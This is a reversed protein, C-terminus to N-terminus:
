FLFDSADLSGSYGKLRITFIGGGLSAPLAVKVLLDSGSRVLQIASMTIGFARLDLKDKGKRFDNVQDEGTTNRFLFRFVDNGGGGDLRDTATSGILTDDGSSGTYLVGKSLPSATITDNGSQGDVTLVNAISTASFDLVNDGSDGRIGNICGEAGQLFEIDCTPSWRALILDGGLSNGNFIRDNGAGGVLTNDVYIGNWGWFTDDGDGGDLLDGGGNSAVLTDNGAGGYVEDSGGGGFLIDDGEEGWLRDNGGRGRLEDNGLGGFLQDGSGGGYLTDNGAEGNLLDGGGGGRLVDNGDGGWLADNGGQGRITDNGTGGELYDSGSGGRLDDDGSGGFLEDDGEIARLNDNGEGGDLWDNGSGGILTDDGGLGFMLDIGPSGYFYDNGSSGIWVQLSSDTFGNNKDFVRLHITRTALEQPFSFTTQALTGAALYSTALGNANTAFSYHFGAAHDATSPDIVNTLGVTVDVTTATVIGSRAVSATPAVNNVLITQTATGTNGNADTVSLQITFTGNDAPTFTFDAVSSTAIVSDGLVATWSYNLPVTGGTVTSGLTIASGEAAYEPTDTIAVVLTGGNSQVAITVTATATGGFGDSISYSFSDTGSFGNNPAYTFSGDSGVAVTGFSPNTHSVVSLTDSDLDTDNGLLGPGSVVLPTNAFTTYSNSNAIPATNAVVASATATTSAATGDNAEVEVRITDGRNGQAALDFTNTTAGSVLVNNVYWRYVFSLADGDADSGSATAVLVDNTFPSATNLTVTATPATNAVVASATATTSAATGDNAEVEVRITDGRNGTVGLDFTNTTAGAVLVNNVYWRYVFSLADGDADSGTATAVLIDNTRPSATNLTVSATPATNAVVASASATTSAATGDNAEVEVRITDGRNGTVGLDFTNTTAGAVLVNNVYWRYVFSLADGDGDSGSATAVLVDNTFPSATNLVVTATPAANAVVASASAPMGSSIIDFAMVEVRITDGRKGFGPQALDLSDTTATTNLTQVLTNNVFWRYTLTVPDGDADSRTVTAVLLTNTGPTTTNLTVTATPATNAVTASATASNGVEIRDNSAVAVTIVDGRNGYGLQSLDLADTTTTTSGMTRVIEGNVRWVYTLYVPDGDTDETTVTATLLDNTGPSTTNLQVGITPATNTARVFDNSTAGLIIDETATGRYDDDGASGSLIDNGAGGVVTDGIGGQRTGGATPNTYSYLYLEYGGAQTDSGPSGAFTDVEIYYTGDAPIPIDILIPDQNDFGDDNIAPSGYYNVLQGASNYVRVIGDVPQMRQRLSSSLLEITLFEGAKAQIAYVDNESPGTGGLTRQIGGIISTARVNLNLGYNRTGQPLLNPVALAPLEGIARASGGLSAPATTTALAGENFTVGANTFALRILEREGFFTNGLADLISTGVSVPSAMIHLPTENALIPGTYGPRFAEYYYSVVVSSSATPQSWVLSLVGGGTAASEATFTASLVSNTAGQVPTIMVGGGIQVAFTAVQLGNSYISGNPLTLPNTMAVPKPIGFVYQVATTGNGTIQENVVRSRQPLGSFIGYSQGDTSAGIPGFSDNHRLGLLHGLEHAILTSTFAVYNPSTAAPQGRRGLFGNANILAVSGTNVNRFDLESALGAILAENSGPAGANLVITGYRGISPRTQTFVISFPFAYDQELRSQILNRDEISYFYENPGTASDFDLYVLQTFDGQVTDAGDNGTVLDIGGGGELINRDASGILVDAFSTGRVNEISGNFVLVNGATDVTQAGSLNLDLTVGLTAASLDLTDIGQSDQITDIGNPVMFYVDNGAGGDSHDNGSGPSLQDDGEGGDLSDQGSSGFLQDGFVGGILTDNGADGFLLVPGYFASADIQDAGAGGFLQAEEIDYLREDPLGAVQLKASDLIVNGAVSEVLRDNGSGGEFLDLGKGGVLQDDGQNGFIIDNGSGGDITDNGAGGRISDDDSVGAPLTDLLTSGFIIDNGAGGDITDNGAGGRISDDDSVGASLITLADTGFIIDNGSGGDITDNGAGGQISDDDSVGAPLTDLPNSGFIIDNGAGGDITDNGTGGRISDDDSVGAPLTALADTGFIIDNGSGGDITDNGTGGRISDDDSVGAPLTDLLTSGFIIDNGSGGDITDNGTGGRISDDDSVGAPLTDLMTSGFIIDNGSGGDITDNGSGGRISDDDSVGVPLIALADTGFIIDNGSGGDITDNGAGGRISDDDSVGAPLTGLADTGFIIDNGSGGDITDNGAGGSLSDDDSVGSVSLVLPDSGFLQDDGLGGRLENQVSNGSLVDGYGSGYLNEFTGSLMVEHSQTDVTQVQGADYALSLTVGRYSYVLDITDIGTSGSESLLDTSGSVQIYYDNGTGGIMSDNGLGGDLTDNGAGAVLSDAGQDETTYPANPNYDDPNNGRLVDDFNGGILTDNGYGGVLEVPTATNGSANITDNGGLGYVVVRSTGAAYNLTTGNVNASTNGLTITDANGTGVIVTFTSTVVGLDDDNVTVVVTTASTNAANFTVTGDANAAVAVGNIKWNVTLPDLTGVDASLAKLTYTGVDNRAATIRVTPALNAVTVTAPVPLEDMPAVPVFFYSFGSLSVPASTGSALDFRRTTDELSQFSAYLSGDPTATLLYNAFEPAFEEYTFLTGVAEGTAPDVRLITPQGSQRGAVYLFGDTGFAVSSSLSLGTAGVLELQNAQSNFRYMEGTTNKTVVLTGNATFAMSAPSTQFSFLPFETTATSGLVQGTWGDRRELRTGSSSEILMWLEGQPSFRFAKLTDNSTLTVFSGLSAGTLGSYRTLIPAEYHFIDGDPGVNWDTVYFLPIPFNGLLTNTGGDYRLFLNNSSDWAVLDPTEDLIRVRINATDISTGTPNDDLYRNSLSFTNVGAALNVRTPTNGPMGWDIILTHADGSGADAFSGSVTLLDNENIATASLTLFATAAFRWTTGASGATAASAYWDDGSAVVAAGFREGGTAAPKKLTHRLKQFTGSGDDVDYVFLTGSNAVTTGDGNAGVALRNGNFALSSGFRGNAPTANPSRLTGLSAGSGLDYLYVGGADTGDSDDNPAGVALFNGNAALTSGFEGNLFGPNPNTILRVLQGNGPDFVYVTGANLGATDDGPTGVILLGNASALAAGFKDGDVPSPNLITRVLVGTTADYLYVAGAAVGNVGRGPASVALLNGISTMATGFGDTLVGDTLSLSREVSYVGASETFLHVVGNLDTARGTAAVALRPGVTILTAGFRGIAANPNSLTTAAGGGAPVIVVSGLNASAGPSGIFVRGNASALATGAEAAAAGTFLNTGAGFATPALVPPANVIAVTSTASGTNGVEDTVTVSITYFGQDNAPFTIASGTGTAVTSGGSLVSWAYLFRFSDPDVVKAIASIQTGESASGVPLGSITVVPSAKQKLFSIYGGPGTRLAQNDTPDFDVTNSFTGVSSIREGDTALATGSSSAGPYDGLATAWIFAGKADLKLLFAQYNTTPNTQLIYSGDLPDFDVRDTFTGTSYINGDADIALDEITDDNFGGINRAWIFDGNSSLKVLFGDFAGAGSTLTFARNPLVDFDVSLRFQGGFIVNNASDTEIATSSVGGSGGFSQAVPTSYTTGNPVLKLVFADAALSTGPDEALTALGNTTASFFTGTVWVNGDSDTAVGNLGDSETGGIRGSRVHTITNPGTTLAYEAVFGDEAGASNLTVTNTPYDVVVAGSGGVGFTGGVVLNGSPSFALDGFAMAGFPFQLDSQPVGDSNLWVVWGMNNTLYSPGSYFAINNLTYNAGSDFSSTFVIRDDAPNLNGRTDIAIKTISANDPVPFPYSSVDGLWLLKGNADYKAIFGSDITRSLTDYSLVNNPDFDVTGTFSGVVYTNGNADIATDLPTMSSATAVGLFELPPVKTTQITLGTADYASKYQRGAGGPAPFDQKAFTGVRSAASLVRFTDGPASEFGNINTIRVTGDLTATGTVRLRDFEPIDPDRGGIELDLTGNSGQTYNGTINLIGPSNGPAVSGGTNTVPGEVTGSGKLVGGTLTMGGGVRLTQNVTTTGGSQNFITAADGFTSGAGISLNGTSNFTASPVFTRGNQIALSGDAMITTLGALANTTSPSVGVYINSNGGDLTVNANLTNITSPLRLTSSAGVYWEGGNLVNSALNDVIGTMLITGGNSARFTGQNIVRGGFELTKGNGGAIITGKNIFQSVSQVRLSQVQLTLGADVTFPVNNGSFGHATTSSWVLGGTGTWLPSNRVDFTLGFSGASDGVPLVRNLTFTGGTFVTQSYRTLDLNGNITYNNFTPGGRAILASSGSTALMGNAIIGGNIEWSGTTDSLTLDGTFRSNVGLSVLTSPATTFYGLKTQTFGGAFVVQGGTSTITGANTWTETTQFGLYLSGASTITGLNTWSAGTASGASIITRSSIATSTVTTDITGANVGGIGLNVVFQDAGTDRRITGLNVLKASTWGITGSTGRITINPGITLVDTTAQQTLNAAGGGTRTGFILSGTGGLTQTGNFQVYAYTGNTGSNDGLPLDTNITLGNLIYLRSPGSSVPTTVMDIPSNLTYNDLFSSATTAFLKSTSGAAISFSGNKLTGGNFNLNGIVDNLQFDGTITGTLNLAGGARTFRGPENISAAVFSGGLNVTGGVAEILGSNSWSSTTITLTRSSEVRWTGQNTHSGSNLIITGGTVDSALLGKHVFNADTRLNFSNSNGISGSKGRITIGSSFTITSAANLVGLVNNTNGGFVISGTGGLTQNGIFILGADRTGAADGINISTSNLTLGNVATVNARQVSSLDIVVNSPGNQSGDLTVGDLTNNYNNFSVSQAVLVSGDKTAITGGKIYGANLNWYGTNADLLLTSGTNNLTGTINVTGATGGTRTFRGPDSVSAGAFTGGLNLTGGQVDITGTSSWNGSHNFTGSTVRITGANASSCNTGVTFIGNNTVGWLGGGLNSHFNSDNLSLSQSAVDASFTGANQWTGAVHNAGPLQGIQGYGRVTVGAGFTVTHSTGFQRTNASTLNVMATDGTNRVKVNQSSSASTNDFTLAGGSLVNVVATNALTLDNRLLLATNATVELTGDLTVADLLTGRGGSSSSRLINAGTTVVTGNTITGDGTLVWAGTTNDLSISGGGLNVTGVVNVTGGTRQFRNTDMVGGVFGFAAPSVSGGFSFTGGNVRVLGGNNWGAQPAIYLHGGSVAEWVGGAQNLFSSFNDLNLNQGSVNASFTGANQWTGAVHNAGPLQGITGVGRVTLGSGFSVAHSTGFQRFNASSLNITATGTPVLVSQNGGPGTNDFTMASGNAMNIASGNDLTMNGRVLLPTNATVNMSGTLTFDTLLAGNGTNFTAGPAVQITGGTISGTLNWTGSPIVLTKGTNNITGTLNVTGGTQSITGLGATPTGGLNLAGTTIQFTGANTWSPANITGVGNSAGNIRFTGTSSNTFNTTSVAIGANTSEIVGHNILTTNTVGSNNYINSASTGTARVTVSSGITLTSGSTDLRIHSAGGAGANQLEVRGTGLIQHNTGAFRLLANGSTHILGNVTVDGSSLVVGATSGALDFTGPVNLASSLFFTINNTTVSEAVSLSNYTQSFASASTFAISVDVGPPGLDPIVVDDGTTPLRGLDWNAATGWSGGAANIWTITAPTVRDELQMDLLNIVKPRKPKVYPPPSAPILKKSLKRLWNPAM